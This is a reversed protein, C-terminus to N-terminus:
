ILQVAQPLAQQPQLRVSILPSLGFRKLAAISATAVAKGFLRFTTM